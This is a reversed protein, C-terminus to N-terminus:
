GPRVYTRKMGIHLSLNWREVRSTGIRELDPSGYARSKESAIPKPPAYRRQGEEDYGFEKHIM